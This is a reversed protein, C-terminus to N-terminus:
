RPSRHAARASALASPSAPGGEDSRASVESLRDIRRLDPFFRAWLAVVALTCIGGALVAPAAGLWAAVLGARFDGLENAANVFLMHVASVRGRMEDPTGLQVVSSRVYVSIMDAAGMVALAAVSLLYSGSLGFALIALGFVAVGGFMARGAHPQRPAPLHALLIGMGVAGLAISSRMVGLGDPGVHLIDRAFVPLLATVGGLLVAFLDLTIAGLVVPQRRLYKMGATVRGLTSGADAASRASRVGIALMAAAVLPSAVLNAAFPVWPGALYVLGGLAPGLVTAIQNTSSSWAIAQPFLERPVLFPTFSQQTPAAFARATGSLAIAAYFPWTEGVGSFTLYLFLGACAAQLGHAAGLIHRKDFRDAIDGAPLTFVAIPLFMALAAYALTLPDRTLDYLYWGIAVTQM